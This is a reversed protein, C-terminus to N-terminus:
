VSDKVFKGNITKGKRHKIKQYAMGLCDVFSINIRMALIILTVIVDGFELKVKEMDVDDAVLEIHLENVEEMVKEFQPRWDGQHIDRETAWDEIMRKYSNFFSM